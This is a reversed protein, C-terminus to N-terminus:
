CDLRYARGMLACLPEWNTGTTRWCDIHHFSRESGVLLARSILFNEGVIYKEPTVQRAEDSHLRVEEQARLRKQADGIEASAECHSVLTQLHHEHTPCLNYFHLWKLMWVADRHNSHNKKKKKKGSHNKIVDKVPQLRKLAQLFLFHQLHWLPWTDAVTFVRQWSHCLFYLCMTLRKISFNLKVDSKLFFVFFFRSLSACFSIECFM